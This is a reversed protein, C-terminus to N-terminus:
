EVGGCRSRDGVERCSVVGATGGKGGVRGTEPMCLGGDRVTVVRMDVGLALFRRQSGANIQENTHINTIGPTGREVGHM